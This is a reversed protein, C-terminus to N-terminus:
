PSTYVRMWHYNVLDTLKNRQRMTLKTKHAVLLARVCLTTVPEEVGPLALRMQRYVKRGGSLRRLFREDSFRVLHFRAPNAIAIDLESSHERPRHVVMVANVSDAGQRIREMAVRTDTYAVTIDGLEPVLSRMYDFTVAVGSVESGIALSLGAARAQLDDDDRIGTGREVMMFVCERGVNELVDVKQEADPHADFYRQLADGQAFVLGVPSDSALLRELNEMSGASPLHQVTFGMDTAVAQLRAGASWYAGGPEGTSLVVPEGDPSQARAPGAASLMALMLLCPLM